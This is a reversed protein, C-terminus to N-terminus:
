GDSVGRTHRKRLSRPKPEPEPASETVPFPLNTTLSNTTQLNTTQVAGEAMQRMRARLVQEASYVHKPGPLIIVVLSGDGCLRAKLIQDTSVGEIDAALMVLDDMM